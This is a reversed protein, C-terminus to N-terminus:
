AGAQLEVIFEKRLWTKGAMCSVQKDYIEIIISPMM